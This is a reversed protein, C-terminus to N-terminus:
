LTVSLEYEIDNNNNNNNNKINVMQFIEPDAVQCKMFKSKPM